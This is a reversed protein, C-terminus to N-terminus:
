WNFAIFANRGDMLRDADPSETLKKLRREATKKSVGQNIAYVRELEKKAVCERKSRSHALKKCKSYAIKWEHLSADRKKKAKFDQKQELWICLNHLNDYIIETAMMIHDATIVSSSMLTAIINGFTMTYNELNPIFSTATERVNADHIQNVLEYYDTTANLLAAHYSEDVTFIDYAHKNAVMDREHDSMADWDELSLDAAKLLRDRIQDRKELIFDALEGYGWVKEPVPVYAGQLRHESTTQRQEQSVDNQYLFVRQFFGKELVHHMIDKPPFTTAWISVGSVVQIDAGKLVKALNNTASGIPAMAEQLYLIKESFYSKKDDLLVSAEDFLLTKYGNLLGKTVKYEMKGTPKGEEDYEPEQDVHGLLGADSGSTFKASEVECADLLQKTFEYAASKGTRSQQIWYVHVRTDLHSGHIPVRVYPAIVQGTVYFLSLMGAFENFFSVTNFRDIYEKIFRSGEFPTKILTYDHWKRNGSDSTPKLLM